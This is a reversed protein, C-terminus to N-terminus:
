PASYGHNYEYLYEFHAVSRHNRTSMLVLFFCFRLSQLMSLLSNKLEVKKLVRLVRAGKSDGNLVKHTKERIKVVHVPVFSSRDFITWCVYASNGYTPFLKCILSDWTLIRVHFNCKLGEM